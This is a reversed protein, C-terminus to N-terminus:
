IQYLLHKLHSNRVNAIGYPVDPLYQFGDTFPSVIFSDDYTFPGQPLDFRISGTNLIIVRPIDARADTKITASLATQLLSYISGESEFPACSICWTQPACGYLSTLNLESRIDTINQTVKVGKKTDFSKIQSDKAHYEFTLRNWDLYRRSYTLNSASTSSALGASATSTGVKKAKMTPNAVGKPNIAGHYSKSAIGSM